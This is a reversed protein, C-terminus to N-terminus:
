ILLLFFVCKIYNKGCKSFSMFVWTLHSHEKIQLNSIYRNSQMEIEFAIRLILWCMKTQSKLAFQLKLQPKMLIVIYYKPLDSLTKYYSLFSFYINVNNILM